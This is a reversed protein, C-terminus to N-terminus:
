SSLHVFAVKTVGIATFLLASFLKLSAKRIRICFFHAASSPLKLLRHSCLKTEQGPYHYNYNTAILKANRQLLIEVIINWQLMQLRTISYFWSIENRSGRQVVHVHMLQLWVISLWMSSITFSTHFTLLIVLVGLLVEEDRSHSKFWPRPQM